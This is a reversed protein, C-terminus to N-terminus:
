LKFKVEVQIKRPETLGAYYPSGVPSSLNSLFQLYQKDLLNNVVLAVGWQRSDAEWGLRTDIRTRAEGMEFGPGKLCNGQM